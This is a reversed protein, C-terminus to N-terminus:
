QPYLCTADIRVWWTGDTEGEAFVNYPGCGAYNSSLVDAADAEAAQLTPGSGYARGTVSASAPAGTAVTVLSAAGIM